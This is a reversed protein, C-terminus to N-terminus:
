KSFPMSILIVHDKDLKMEEALKASDISATCVTSFGASAAYLYINQVVCGIHLSAFIRCKDEPINKAKMTAINSVPILTLASDMYFETRMGCFGRIDRKQELCLENKAQDYRFLGDKMAIYLVVDQANLATPNTRRGDSRNQGTAAYLLDSLEQLTLEKDSFIRTSKRETLVQMLPKGGLKDPEPLKVAKEAGMSSLVTSCLVFTPLMKKM